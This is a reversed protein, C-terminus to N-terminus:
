SELKLNESKTREPLPILFLFRTYQGDECDVWIEGQHSEIIKKCIALGLGSGKPKKINQNEAQYFKEFILQQLETKIGKGNDTVCIQVFNDNSESEINIEGNTPNCFKIANSLLNLMVQMLRDKDLLLFPLDEQLNMTLLINKEDLVKEITEVAETIIENMNVQSLILEQKGSEFKELDLVQNILREMRATEKLITQLFHQKEEEELDPNDSIIEAFARISTIPTRMEHTITSIFDNKRIDTKKLEQNAVQFEQSLKELEASKQQLQKNLAIVEQSEKLIDFVEKKSIREELVISAVLIRAAATGITGSLIKEIFEIFHADAKTIKQWSKNQYQFYNEFLELTRKKGLFNMLLNKMERMEATKQIEGLLPQKDEFIDVFSAAQKQEEENQKFFLACIMYFSLNFLMTWFFAKSISDLSELGLFTSPKLFSFGLFGESIISETIWHAEVLNPVVLLYSWLVFGAILGAIAGIKNGQKWFLGGLIAPAFQAVAVFSILGISVLSTKEALLKYYLYALLVILIISVRRVNLLINRLTATNNKLKPISVLIPMVLNNSIMVNLAMIEVIMMSTGASFGGLYALIALWDYDLLLPISVVFTDPNIQNGFLLKGGFAIPFVFFNILFLYLPFLWMAKDIHREQTNEIVAVQFQRPLFMIALLSLLCMLFWSSFGDQANLVFLHQLDTNEKAKLFIDDIGNFVYFSVFCGVLVFFVLKLISELAIVAIMGEHRETAEVNRTGFLINFFVLSLAIYFAYDGWFLSSHTVTETQQTLLLFSDAIAKLQLAIYPIVGLVCVLSVLISLSISKGYRSSIFDAINTIHKTKCIRIIKRMVIWWLPLITAPGIYTTLFTVGENAARGVSGYYTWTTCYVTLSLAYAYPNDILSKGQKARLDGFYATWFLLLLYTFSIFVVFWFNM